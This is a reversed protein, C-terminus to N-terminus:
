YNGKILSEINSLLDEFLYDDYEDSFDKECITDVVDEATTCHNFLCNINGIEDEVETQSANLNIACEKLLKIEFDIKNNKVIEFNENVLKIIENKM